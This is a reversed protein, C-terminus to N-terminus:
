SILCKWVASLVYCYLKFNNIRLFRGFIKFKNKMSKFSTPKIHKIHYLVKPVFAAVATIIAFFVKITFVILIELM